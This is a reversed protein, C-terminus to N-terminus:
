RDPVTIRESYGPVNTQRARAIALSGEPVDDVIISGAATFANNHITVPAVFVNDSGTRVNSGIATRQKGSGLEPRYNATITGAGINTGTGITADGIYSLHPIKSDQGIESNKIEVFAGAKSGAHLVTGPRLYAFPGVLAREGIDAQEAHSRVVRADRGVRVDTLTTMPGIVAGVAIHTAGRLISGAEIHADAEIRVTPEITVTNPVDITVGVQNWAAIIRRQLIGAATALDARDNIGLLEDESGAIVIRTAGGAKAILAFLDTIYYEGQANNTSLKPLAERLAAADFCYVGANLERIALEDATADGVEVIKAITGDPRHVIRGYPLGSDSSIGLASASSSNHRHHEVVAMMTAETFLVGDGNVVLVDGSFGQLADGAAALADGSGRQEHQVATMIDEPLTAAVVDGGHGIVCVSREAQLGQTASLVWGIVTRGLITHLMKPKSSKMRTGLGAALIVIALPRASDSQPM